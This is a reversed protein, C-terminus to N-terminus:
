SFPEVVEVTGSQWPKGHYGFEGVKSFTFDFSESPAILVGDKTANFFYPESDNDAAILAPVVDQNVWRVTHVGLIVRTVQPTFTKGSDISAGEPIIVTIIGLQKRPDPIPNASTFMVAFLMIFAIGTTLGAMVPTTTPTDAMVRQM